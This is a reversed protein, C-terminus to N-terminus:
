LQKEFEYFKGSCEFGNKDYFGKNSESETTSYLLSWEIGISKCHSTYLKVLGTGIGMGRCDDRVVMFDLLAGFFKLKESFLCGVIERADNIAVFSLGDVMIHSLYSVSPYEGTSSLVEPTELLKACGPLDARKVNRYTIM